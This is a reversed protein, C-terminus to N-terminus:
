VGSRAAALDKRMEEEDQVTGPKSHALRDLQARYVDAYSDFRAQLDVFVRRVWAEPMKGYTSFAVEVHSGVQARLQKQVRRRAWASSTRLVLDNPQISLNLRDVDLRPMDKLVGSLENQDPTNEPGLGAATRALVNALDCALDKVMAAIPAAQEAATQELVEGAIAELSRASVGNETWCDVVADAAREIARGGYERIEDTIKLSQNRVEALRGAARRLDNEVTRFQSGLGESEREFRQLQALLAAEVGAKLAGGKRRLSERWLEVHRDYLPAIEEEFWRELLLAHEPKVSVPRVSLSLGLQSRINDVVYKTVREQDDAALLDSKSLLVVAPIAAEFLAQVTALDDATLTAGADILVVGLDCRPLYALTEAAGAAALSGLGPTDVYAIGDRLRPSPLEVVIRTVHKANGPNSQETVFESLREIEFQQAGADAFWAMGRPSAGYVIRTPVSTVPNVGVPLVDKQLIHNLLSSKGSSVRGFVAIEFGTSEWRAVINALPPRFEVLGHANIIRELTQILSVDTGAKQLKELRSEFDQALDQALYSDLKAILGRMESVLGNLEPLVADPM